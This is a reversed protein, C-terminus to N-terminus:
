KKFRIEHAFKWKGRSHWAVHRDNSSSDGIDITFEKNGVKLTTKQYSPTLKFKNKFAYIAFLTQDHWSWGFGGKVTGDDKFNDMEKSLHYMPM